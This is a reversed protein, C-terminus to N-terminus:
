RVVSAAAEAARARRSLWILGVLYVLAVLATGRTVKGGTQGAIELLPDFVLAFFGLAGAALALQQRPGWAPRRSWTYIRWTVLSGVAVLALITILYPVRGGELAAPLAFFGFVSLFGLARLTWLHPVRQRSIPAMAASAWSLAGELAVRPRLHLAIWVLAVTLLAAALYPILPPHTYGQARFKVFGFGAVGVIWTLGLLLGLGSLGRRRLWPLKAQRPFIQEVLLIPIAISCIAHFATLTLAWILNTGGIRSYDCLGTPPTTGRHCVDPWYPNFWSTVVLAEEFIGYAAGLLLIGPWGLGRRRVLERTLIAGSGYLAPLYLLSFPSTIFVLPPTSNTLVEATIPALLYLVLLPLWTRAVADRLPRADQPVHPTRVARRSLRPKEPLAQEEVTVLSGEVVNTTTRTSDGGFFSPRM